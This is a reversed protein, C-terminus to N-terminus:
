RSEEEWEVWRVLSAVDAVGDHNWGAPPRQMDGLACVRGPALAAAMSAAEAARAAPAFGGIGVAALSGRAVGLAAAADEIRAVPHLWAYRGAPPPEFDSRPDVVVTWGTSAEPAIVRAGRLEAAGRAQQVASARAPDRPAPWERERAALAGALREAFREADGAMGEEIYIALPSLCGEQEELTLDYALRFAISDPDSAAAGGVWAVSFRHGRPVFTVRGAAVRWALRRTWEAVTVDDGFVAVADSQAVFAEEVAQEGGPWYLVALAEGLVPDCDALARAFWGAAAPEGNATKVMSAAGVLVAASLSELGSWPTNGALVHLVLRPAIARRRREGFSVFQDLARVDGLAAALTRRSGDEDLKSALHDLGAACAAPTRGTAEAVALLLGRRLPDVPDRLRRGTRALVDIRAALARAAWAAGGHVLARALREADSIGVRPFEYTLRSGAANVHLTRAPLAALREREGAPAWWTSVGGKPAASV